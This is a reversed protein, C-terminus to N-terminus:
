MVARLPDEVMGLERARALYEFFTSRGMGIYDWPQHGVLRIKERNKWAWAVKALPHKQLRSELEAMFMERNERYEELARWSVMGALRVKERIEEPFQELIEETRDFHIVLVRDMLAEALAGRPLVNTTIIVKGEFKFRTFGLRREAYTTNWEVWREDKDDLAQMLITIANRDWESYDDILMVKDRHEYLREFLVFPTLRAGKIEVDAVERAVTTKGQGAPGYLIAGHIHKSNVISVLMRRVDRDSM